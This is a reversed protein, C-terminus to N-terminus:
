TQEEYVQTIKAELVLRVYGSIPDGDITISADEILASDNDKTISASVLGEIEDEDGWTAQNVSYLRFTSTYGQGWDM